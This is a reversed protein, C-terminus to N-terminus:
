PREEVMLVVEVDEGLQEAGDQCSSRALEQSMAQVLAVQAVRGGSLGLEGREGIALKVADGSVPDVIRAEAALGVTGCERDVDYGCSTLPLFEYLLGTQEAPFGGLAVTLAAPGADGARRVMLARAVGSAEESLMVQEGDVFPFMGEPVCVFWRRERLTPHEGPDLTVGYCGDAGLDISGLTLTVGSLDGVPSGARRGAPAAARCSAAVPEPASLKHLLSPGGTEELSLNGWANVQISVGGTPLAAGAPHADARIVQSPHDGARWFILGRPLGSGELIAATCGTRSPVPLSTGAPMTWTEASAFAAETLLAEPKAGIAECSLQVDPALARLRVVQEQDTGNHLYVEATFTAVCAGTEEDFTAGGECPSYCDGYSGYSGECPEIPPSTAVCCLVGAGCAVWQAAERLPTLTAPRSMAPVLAWWSLALAPLALLDWPDSWTVWGVGVISMLQHWALAVEPSLQLAAFVAGVAVYCAALAGKSTARTLVALVVPALVLGAVDSLKGTVVGPLWGAGKLVHDNAAMVVLSTVWIPHLLAREPRREEAEGAGGSWEFGM